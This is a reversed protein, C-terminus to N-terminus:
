VGRRKGDLWVGENRLRWYGGFERSRWSCFSQYFTHGKAGSNLLKEDIIDNIWGEKKSFTFPRTLIFQRGFAEFLDEKNREWFRLLHDIDGVMTSSSPEGGYGAYEEIYDIILKKDENTLTNLM